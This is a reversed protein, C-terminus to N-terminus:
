FGRKAFHVIKAAARSHSVPLGPHDKLLQRLDHAASTWHGSYLAEGLQNGVEDEVQLTWYRGHRDWWLVIHNAPGLGHAPLDSIIRM